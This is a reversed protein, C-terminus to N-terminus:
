LDLHMRFASGFRTQAPGIEVFGVREYFGKGEPGAIVTLHTGGLRRLRTTADAILGRGIGLRFELPDVFLGDLDYGGAGDDHPITCSFGVTDGNHDYAVRVCGAAILEPDVFIADPNARLQERYAPWVESSRRQLEELEGRQWPQAPQVHDLEPMHPWAVSPRTRNPVVNQVVTRQENHDSTIDVSM